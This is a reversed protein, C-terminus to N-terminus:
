GGGFRSALSMVSNVYNQTDSYMGNQQVSRLGQYYGAAAQAENGGTSQLLSRLMLVGGRVNDAASSPSLSGGALSGQIWNWTGPEIQMVGHAGTSSTLDNNFGSEQWGIAEALSPPVGNASAIAGVQSASMMQATPYPQGTSSTLAAAGIPQGEASGTTSSGGAPASGSLSLTSGSLLIGSPDLGNASALADVTTGERAAIASLTDGPQVLYGSSTTSSSVPESTGSVPAGSLSLTSGSLLVANPDLGNASALADVTTGDRAAIASLTDGPQVTYGGSAGASETTTVPAATEGIEESSSTAPASQPPISLSSGAILESSPSLGNAAALQDVSLGDAAAVSALSEGTTVTHVFYAAAPTPVALAALPLTAALPLVIRMRMARLTAANATSRFRQL